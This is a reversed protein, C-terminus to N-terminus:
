SSFCFAVPVAWDYTLCIIKIYERTQFAFCLHCKVALRIYQLVHQNNTFIMNRAKPIM